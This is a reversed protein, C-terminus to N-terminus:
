EKKLASIIYETLDYRNKGEEFAVKSEISRFYVQRSKRDNVSLLSCLHMAAYYEKKIEIQSKGLLSGYELLQRYLLDGSSAEKKNKPPLPKRTVYLRQYQLLLDEKLRDAWSPTLLQYLLIDKGRNLSSYPRNYHVEFKVYNSAADYNRISSRVKSSTKQMLNKRANYMKMDLKSNKDKWFRCGNKDAKKEDERLKQEPKGHHAKLYESPTEEVEMIAGFELEKVTAKWLNIHLAECLRRVGEMFLQRDFTCNHGQMCYMMSLKLEVRGNNEDIVINITEHPFQYLYGYRGKQLKELYVGKPSYLVIRIFDIM